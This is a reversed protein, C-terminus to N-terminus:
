EIFTGSSLAPHWLTCAGVMTGLVRAVKLIACKEPADAMKFIALLDLPGQLCPQRAGSFIAVTYKVM